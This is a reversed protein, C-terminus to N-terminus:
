LSLLPKSSILEASKGKNNQALQILLVMKKKFQDTKRKKILSFVM